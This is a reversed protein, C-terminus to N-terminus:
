YRFFSYMILDSNFYVLIKIEKGFYDDLIEVEIKNNVDKKLTAELNKKIHELADEYNDFQLDKIIKDIKRIDSEHDFRINKLKLNFQDAIKFQKYYVDVIFNDFQHKLNKNKIAVNIKASFNPDIKKLEQNIKLIADEYTNNISLHFDHYKSFFVTIKSKLENLLIVLPITLKKELIDGNWLVRAKLELNFDNGCFIDEDYDFQIITNDTKLIDILNIKLQEIFDKRDDIDKHDKAFIFLNTDELKRKIEDFYFINKLKLKYRSDSNFMNILIEYEKFESVQRFSKLNMFIYIESIKEILNQKIKNSSSISSIILDKDNEFFNRFDSLIENKTQIGALEILYVTDNVRVIFKLKNRSINDKVNSKSYDTNTVSWQAKYAIRLKKLNDNLKDIVQEYTNETSVIWKKTKEVEKAIIVESSGENWILSTIKIKKSFQYEFFSFSINYESYGEVPVNKSGELNPFLIDHYILSLKPKIYENFIKEWTNYITFDLNHTKEFFKGIETIIDRTSKVNLIVEIEKEEQGLKLILWLKKIENVTESESINQDSKLHITLESHVKNIEEAMDSLLAWIYDSKFVVKNEINKLTLAIKEWFDNQDIKVNEVTLSNKFNMDNFKWTFNIINDGPLLNKFKEKKDLDLEINSIVKEMMKQIKEYVVIKKDEITLDFNYKKNFFDNINEKLNDISLINNLNLTQYIIEDDYIIKIRFSTSESELKKNHSNYLFDVYIDSNIEHMKKRLIDLVDWGTNLCNLHWDYKISYFNRIFKKIEEKKLMWSDVFLEYTVKKSNYTVIVWICFYNSSCTERKNKDQKEIKINSNINELQRTLSLKINEWHLDEPKKIKFDHVEEFFLDIKKWVQDDENTKKENILSKKLANNITITTITFFSITFLLIKWIILNKKM